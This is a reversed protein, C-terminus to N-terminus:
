TATSSRAASRTRDRRRSLFIWVGSALVLKNVLKPHRIAIELAIASGMSYGLFDARQVGLQHLRAVTDNTM